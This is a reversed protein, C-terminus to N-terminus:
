DKDKLLDEIKFQLRMWIPLWHNAMDRSEKDAMRSALIDKCKEIKYNVAAFLNSMDQKNLEQTAM